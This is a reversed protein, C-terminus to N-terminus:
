ELQGEGSKTVQLRKEEQILREEDILFDKKKSPKLYDSVTDINVDPFVDETRRLADEKSLKDVRRLRHAYRTAEEIRPDQKVGPRGYAKETGAQDRPEARGVEVANPTATPPKTVEACGNEWRRVVSKARLYDIRKVVEGNPQFEGSEDFEDPGGLMRDGPELAGTLWMVQELGVADRPSSVPYGTEYLYITKLAEEYTM